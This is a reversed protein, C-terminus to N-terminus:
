IISEDQLSSMIAKMYTYCGPSDMFMKMYDDSPLPVDLGDRICKMLFYPFPISNSYPIDMWEYGCDIGKEKMVYYAYRNPGIATLDYGNEELWRFFKIKMRFTNRNLADVVDKNDCIDDVTLDLYEMLDKTPVYKCLVAIAQEKTRVPRYKLAAEYGKEDLAIQEKEDPTLGSPCGFREIIDERDFAMLYEPLEIIFKLWDGHLYQEINHRRKLVRRIVKCM